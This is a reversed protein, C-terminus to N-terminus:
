FPLDDDPTEAPAEVPAATTKKSSKAKAPAAPAPAPAEVPATQAAQSDDERRATLAYYIANARIDRGIEPQNTKNSTYVRDTLEGYVNIASGKKLSKSFNILNREWITVTFWYTSDEPDTYEHNALRFTAYETGNKTTKIEPDTAIHGSVLMTRM